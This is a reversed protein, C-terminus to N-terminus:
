RESVKTRARNQILKAVEDASKQGAFYAAADEDIISLIAPDVKESTSVSEILHLFDTKMEPTIEYFYDEPFESAYEPNEERLQNFYDMEDQYYKIDDDIKAECSKRNLPISYRDLSFQTQQDEEFFFRIFDWAEDKSKSASSIAFTLSPSATM